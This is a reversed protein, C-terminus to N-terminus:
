KARSAKQSYQKFISPLDMKAPLSSIGLSSLIREMESAIDKRNAGYDIPNNHRAHSALKKKSVKPSKSM